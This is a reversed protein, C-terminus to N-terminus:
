RAARGCRPFQACDIRELAAEIAAEAREAGGGRWEIRCDAGSSRPTPPSRCAATMAKKMRSRRRDAARASRRSAPPAAARHAARRDGSAHGRAAGSRSRAPSIRRRAARALKRAVAFRSTRPKRACRSRRRAYTKACRMTSRTRGSRTRRSRHAELARVEGAKMGEARAEACLQEIEGERSRADAPARARRRVVVDRETTSSPTSPSNPRTM